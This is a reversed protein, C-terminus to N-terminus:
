DLSLVWEALRGADAQNMTNPPMATAGRVGHSGKRISQSPVGRSEHQHQGTM